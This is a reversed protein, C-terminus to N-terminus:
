WFLADKTWEHGQYNETNHLSGKTSSLMVDKNKSEAITAM